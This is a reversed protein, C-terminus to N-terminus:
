IRKQWSVPNRHAHFVAIIYIKNSYENILFFIGYPFRRILTRRIQKYQVQFLFPNRKIESLGAEICHLFQEGLGQQKDEYWSFAEYIDEEANSTFAIKYEM